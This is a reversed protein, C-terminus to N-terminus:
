WGRSDSQLTFYKYAGRFLSPIYFLGYIPLYILVFPVVLLGQRLVDRHAYGHFFAYPLSLIMWSLSLLASQVWSFSSSSAQMGALTALPFGFFFLLFVPHTFFTKPYQFVAQFFGSNWRWRQKFWGMVTSQTFTQVGVLSQEVRYGRSNLRLAYELDECLWRRDLFGEKMLVERRMAMCGGWLFLSSISSLAGTFFTNMNYELEQMGSFIGANCIKYKSSVAGLREDIQFRSIIDKLAEKNVIIDTDIMFVIEGKCLPLASNISQVKGQNSANNKLIFPYKKKLNKLIEGTDDTSADNVVIVSCKKRPYSDYISKIAREVTDRDNFTPIIFSAQPYGHFKRSKINEYLTLCVALMVLTASFLFVYWPNM